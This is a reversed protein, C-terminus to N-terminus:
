QARSATVLLKPSVSSVFLGIRGSRQRTIFFVSWSTIAASSIAIRMATPM